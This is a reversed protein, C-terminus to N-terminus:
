AESASRCVLRSRSNRNLRSSLTAGADSSTSGETSRWARSSSRPSVASTMRNPSSPMARDRPVVALPDALELRGLGGPGGAQQAGQQVAALRQQHSGGVTGRRRVQEGAVGVLRDDGRQAVVALGDAREGHVVPHALHAAERGAVHLQQLRDGVVGRHRQVVLHEDPPQAVVRHVVGEGAQRVADCSVASAIAARASARCRRPWTATM